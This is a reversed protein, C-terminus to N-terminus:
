DDQMERYPYSIGAWFYVQADRGRVLEDVGYVSVMKHDNGNYSYVPGNYGCVITDPHTPALIVSLRQAYSPGSREFGSGEGSHCTWLKLREVNTPMEETRLLHAMKEPSNGAPRIGILDSNGHSQIYLTPSIENRMVRLAGGNKSQFILEPHSGGPKLSMKEVMEWGWNIIEERQSLYRDEIFLEDPFDYGRRRLANLSQNEPFPLYVFRKGAM